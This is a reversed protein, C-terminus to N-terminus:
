QFADSMEIKKNGFTERLRKQFLPMQGTGGTIRVLDVDEHSYGSQQFVKDLAAFIEDLERQVSGQFHEREIEMQIDIDSHRFEFQSKENGGLEIKSKEINNYIPYGLDEEVLCFLQTIYKQNEGELVWGEIEKLFEWTEREKLFVIHAPNCLKTLLRRPFNLETDGMPVRYKIDRGFHLSIFDRMIRGDIADGAIFVGSLGYVNKESFQDGEMKLLTFDSTGGGIDGVLILGKQITSGTSLGAAVPEPCFEIRKFGALEAAKKMRKEALRDKDPELSYLAPRGLVVNTIDHGTQKDARKKMERLFTAILEEIKMRRGFVETGKFGPEPLFKKLSRFFRGEGGFEQYADIAQEGFYYENQGPSFILSRLIPSDDELNLLRSKEGEKAFSLLSNSTGFDVGYWM